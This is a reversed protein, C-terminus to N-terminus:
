RKGLDCVPNCFICFYGNVEHPPTNYIINYIDRRLALTYMETDLM